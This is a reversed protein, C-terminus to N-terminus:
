FVLFIWRKESDLGFQEASPLVVTALVVKLVETVVVSLFLGSGIDGGGDHELLVNGELSNFRLNKDWVSSTSILNQFESLCLAWDHLSKDIGEHEVASITTFFLLGTENDLLSELQDVEHCALVRQSHEDFGDLVSAWSLVGLSDSFTTRNLSM